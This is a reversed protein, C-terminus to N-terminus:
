EATVSASVSERTAHQLNESLIGKRSRESVALMAMSSDICGHSANRGSPTMMNLSMRVGSGASPISKSTTLPLPGTMAEGTLLHKM